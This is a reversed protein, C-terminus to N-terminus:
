AALTQRVFSVTMDDAAAAVAADDEVRLTWGPLLTLLPMGVKLSTNVVTTESPAGVFFSYNYTLAAAQVAGASIVALVNSSDDLVKLVVQRNGATATSALTVAVHDIVWIEGTGVTFDKSSDDATAEYEHKFRMSM